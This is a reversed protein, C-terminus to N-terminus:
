TITRDATSSDAVRLISSRDEITLSFAGKPMATFANCCIRASGTVSTRGDVTAEFDRSLGVSDLQKGFVSGLSVFDGSVLM